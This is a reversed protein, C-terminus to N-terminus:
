LLQFVNLHEISDLYRAHTIIAELEILAQAQDEIHMIQLCGRLAADLHEMTGHSLFTYMPEKNERFLANMQELLELGEKWDERYVADVALEAMDILDFSIRRLFQSPFIFLVILFVVVAATFIKKGM